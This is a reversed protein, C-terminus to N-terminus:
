ANRTMWVALWQAKLAGVTGALLGLWGAGDGITRAAAFLALGIYALKLGEALLLHFVGLTGLRSAKFWLALAVAANPVAIAAGGWLAALAERGGGLGLALAAIVATVGLQLSFTAGIMRAWGGPAGIGAPGTKTERRLMM